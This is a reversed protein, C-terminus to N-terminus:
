NTTQSVECEYQSPRNRFQPSRGEMIGLSIELGTWVGHSFESWNWAGSKGREEAIGRLRAMKRDRDMLYGALRRVTDRPMEEANTPEKFEESWGLVPRGHQEELGRTVWYAAEENAAQVYEVRDGAYDETYFTLGRRRFCKIPTSAM